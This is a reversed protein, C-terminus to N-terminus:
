SNLDNLYNKIGNNILNFCLIAMHEPSNKAGTEIWHEVLGTCGNLYFSFAFEIDLESHKSSLTDINEIIKDSIMHKIKNVFSIDGNPGLLASVLNINKSLIRFIDVLYSPDPNRKYEDKHKETVNILETLLESEIKELMDYIDNYHLYFTSRNIDVENVLEKVTIEKISKEKLLKTLGDKLQIQTKRIRRDKKNQM